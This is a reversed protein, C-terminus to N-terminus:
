KLMLLKDASYNYTKCIIYVQKITPFQTGAKWESINSKSINLLRAIEIQKVKKTKLFKAFGKKFEM